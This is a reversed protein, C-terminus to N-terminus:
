ASADAKAGTTVPSKSYRNKLRALRGYRHEVYPRTMSMGRALDFRPEYGLLRRAMGIDIDCRSQFLALKAGTAVHRRRQVLGRAYNLALNAQSLVHSGVLRTATRKLRAAAAPAHIDAVAVCAVHPGLEVADLGLMAQYAGYFERWAVPQPGSVLMREGASVNGTAAAIIAQCVDDIYVANCTGDGHDPLVVTGTLLERIPSDTWARGNPGYVVTPQLIVADLGSDRVLQLIEREIGLKAQKYHSGPHEVALTEDLRGPPFPEYVAATSIHIMRVGALACESALVRAIQINADMDAFDFACHVLTTCGGLAARVSIPDALDLPRGGAGARRRSLARVQPPRASEGLMAVLRAGIFGSAGTVAISLEHLPKCQTM